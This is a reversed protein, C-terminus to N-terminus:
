NWSVDHGVLVKESSCASPLIRHITGSRRRCIWRKTPQFLGGMPSLQSSFRNCATTSWESPSQHLYQSPHCCAGVPKPNIVSPCTDVRSARRCKWELALIVHLIDLHLKCSRYSLTIHSSFSLNYTALSIQHKAYFFNLGYIIHARGKLSLYQM